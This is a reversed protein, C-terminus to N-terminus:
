FAVSLTMNGIQKVQKEVSKVYGRKFNSKSAFLLVFISLVNIGSLELSSLM